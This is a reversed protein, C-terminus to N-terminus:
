VPAVRWPFCCCRRRPSSPPDKLPIELDGPRPERYNTGCLFPLCDRHESPKMMPPLGRIVWVHEYYVDYFLYEGRDLESRYCLVCEGDDCRCRRRREPCWRGGDGCRCRGEHALCPKCARRVGIFWSLILRSSYRDFVMCMDGARVTTKSAHIVDLEWDIRGQRVRITQYVGGPSSSSVVDWCRPLAKLCSTRVLNILFACRLREAHMFRWVLNPTAKKRTLTVDRPALLDLQYRTPSLGSPTLTHQMERCMMAPMGDIVWVEHVKGVLNERAGDCVCVHQSSVPRVFWVLELLSRGRSIMCLDGTHVTTESANVLKLEWEVKNRARVTQETACPNTTSVIDWPARALAEFCISQLSKMPPPNSCSHHANHKFVSKRGRIKKRMPRKRGPFRAPVWMALRSHIARNM